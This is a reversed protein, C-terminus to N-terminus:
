EKVTKSENWLVNRLDFRLLLYNRFSHFSRLFHHITVFHAPFFTLFHRNTVFHDYVKIRLESLIPLAPM